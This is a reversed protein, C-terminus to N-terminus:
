NSLQPKRGRRFLRIILYGIGILAVVAVAEVIRRRRAERQADQLRRLAKRSEGRSMPPTQSKADPVSLVAAMALFSVWAHLISRTM